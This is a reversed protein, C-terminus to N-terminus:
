HKSRAHLYNMKPTHSFWKWLNFFDNERGWSYTILCLCSRYGYRYHASTQAVLIKKPFLADSFTIMGSLLPSLNPAKLWNTFWTLWLKEINLTLPLTSRTLSTSLHLIASKFPLFWLRFFWILKSWIGDFTTGDFQLFILNYTLVATSIKM